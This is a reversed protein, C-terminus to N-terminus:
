PLLFIFLLMAPNRKLKILNKVLLAWLNRGRIGCGSSPKRREKEKKEEPNELIRDLTGVVSDVVKEQEHGLMSECMKSDTVCLRLFVQELSSVSHQAMLSGPSGEALLRGDRM